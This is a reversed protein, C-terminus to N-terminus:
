LRYGVKLIDKPNIKQSEFILEKIILFGNSVKIWCGENDINVVRGNTMYYDCNVFSYGSIEYNKNKIKLMPLPYPSVLARFFCKLFLINWNFDIVCDELNRKTCWTALSKDQPLPIIKGDIYDKVIIHLHNEIYNNLSVMFEVSTQGVNKISYQHIIDGDDVYKSMLHVTLGLEKEDNLIAWVTSHLGRYKPLLSYHINLIPCRSLTEDMIIPQYGACVILDFYQGEISELCSDNERKLTIVDIDKSVIYIKQFEKQLARLAAIAGWGDGAFCLKIM